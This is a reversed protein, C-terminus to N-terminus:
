VGIKLGAWRLLKVLWMEKYSYETLDYDVGFFSLVHYDLTYTLPCGNWILIMIIHIILVAPYAYDESMFKALTQATFYYLWWTVILHLSIAVGWALILKITM